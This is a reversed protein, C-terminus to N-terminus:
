RCTIKYIDIWYNHYINETCLDQYQESFFSEAKPNISLQDHLGIFYYDKSFLLHTIGKERLLKTVEPVSYNASLVLRSWQNHETDPLCKQECYYGRGDWMFFVKDHEDLQANIFSSSQFHPTKRSLFLYKSEKGVIVDLPKVDYIFIISYILTAITVGGILGVTLLKGRNKLILSDSLKLMVGATLLSLGPFIPLLFRIQQSGLAWIFFRLAALTILTNAFKNKPLFPYFLLLPFLFSGIEITGFFSTFSEFHAYLNWPLLLYDVWRHGVGFSNLYSLFFHVRELPWQVGGFYFPYVPNGAWILNKIYWPSGILSTTCGFILVNQLTIKLGQKRSNWIIALGIVAVSGLAIYKSGIALGSMIGSLLLYKRHHNDFWIFLAYIGLFEYLAWGMDIYALSAWIPFIPMAILIATGIWGIERSFFRRGFAFTAIVLFLAFSLHILKAFNDSEFRLGFMFLMELTFPGNAGWNDPLLLIRGANLFTKPGQLHYMLSDYDWPPTLSQLFSLGLILIWIFILSKKGINLQDFGKVAKIIKIKGFLLLEWWENCSWYLTISSLLVFYWINLLGLLGLTFICYSFLGLGLPIVFVLNELYSSPEIMLWNIIKQGIGGGILIVLVLLCITFISNAFGRLGIYDQTREPCFYRFLSFIILIITILLYRRYFNNAKILKLISTSYLKFNNM